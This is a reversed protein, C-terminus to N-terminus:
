SKHKGMILAELCHLTVKLSNDTEIIRHMFVTNNGIKESTKIVQLTDFYRAYLGAFCKLCAYYMINTWKQRFLEWISSVQVERLEDDIKTKREEINSVEQAMKGKIKEMETKQDSANQIGFFCVHHEQPPKLICLLRVIIVPLFLLISNLM